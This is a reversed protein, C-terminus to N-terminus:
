GIIRIVNGVLKIAKMYNRDNEGFPKTYNCHKEHSL